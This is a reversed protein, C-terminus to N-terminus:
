DMARAEACMSHAGREGPGREGRSASPSSAAYRAHAPPAHTRLWCVSTSNRVRSDALPGPPCSARFARHGPHTEKGVKKACAFFTPREASPRTSAKSRSIHARGFASHFGQKTFIRETSPRTSAKSGPPRLRASCRISADDSASGCWGQSQIVLVATLLSRCDRGSHRRRSLLGRAPFALLVGFSALLLHFSLFQIVLEAASFGGAGAPVVLV